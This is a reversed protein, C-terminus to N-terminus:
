RVETYTRDGCATGAPAGSAHYKCCGKMSTRTTKDVVLGIDGFLIMPGHQRDSDLYTHLRDVRELRKSIDDFSAQSIELVAYTYTRTHSM